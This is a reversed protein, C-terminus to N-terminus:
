MFILLQGESKFFLSKLLFEACESGLAHVQSILIFEWGFEFLWFRRCGQGGM